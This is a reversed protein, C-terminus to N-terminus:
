SLLGLLFCAPLLATLCTLCDTTQRVSRGGSPDNGPQFPEMEGLRLMPFIGTAGHLFTITRLLHLEQGAVPDSWGTALPAATSTVFGDFGEHCCGTRRPPSDAPRLM